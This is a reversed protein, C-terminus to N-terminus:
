NINPNCSERLFQGYRLELNWMDVTNWFLCFINRALRRKTRIKFYYEGLSLIELQWSHITINRFSPCSIAGTTRKHIVLYNHNVFVVDLFTNIIEWPLMNNWRHSSIKFPKTDMALGKPKNELKKDLISYSAPYWMSTSDGRHARVQVGGCMLPELVYISYILIHMTSIIVVDEIIRHWFVPRYLLTRTRPAFLLVNKMLFTEFQTKMIGNPIINRWDLPRCHFQPM